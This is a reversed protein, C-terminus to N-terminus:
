RSGGGGGQGSKGKGKGRKAQRSNWFHTPGPRLVLKGKGKDKGGKKGKKGHDRPPTRAMHGEDEAERRLANAPSGPNFRFREANEEFQVRGPPGGSPSPSRRPAGHDERAGPGARLIPSRSREGAGHDAPGRAEQKAQASLRPRADAARRM